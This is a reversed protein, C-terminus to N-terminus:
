NWDFVKRCGSAILWLSGAFIAMPIIVIWSASIAFIIVFFLIRDAPTVTEFIVFRKKFPKWAFKGLLVFVILPIIFYTM